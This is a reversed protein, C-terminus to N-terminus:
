AQAGERRANHMLALIGMAASGEALVSALPAEVPNRASAVMEHFHQAAKSWATSEFLELREFFDDVDFPSPHSSIDNAEASVTAALSDLPLRQLASPCQRGRQEPYAHAAGHTARVGQKSIRQLLPGLLGIVRADRLGGSFEDLDLDPTHVRMVPLLVYTPYVWDVEDFAGARLCKATKHSVRFRQLNQDTLALTTPDCVLLNSLIARWDKVELLSKALTPSAKLLPM